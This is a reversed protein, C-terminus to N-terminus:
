VVGGRQVPQGSDVVSGGCRGDRPERNPRAARLTFYSKCRSCKFQMEVAEGRALLKGCQPCRVEHLIEQQM